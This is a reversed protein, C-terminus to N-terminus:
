QLKAKFFTLMKQEFDATATASYTAGGPVDFVHGGDPYIIYEYQKDKSKLLDATQNAQDIPVLTDPVCHFILVPAKIEACIDSLSYRVRVVTVAYAGSVSIIGRVDDRTGLILSLYGGLSHGYVGLSGPAVYSLSKLAELGNGLVERVQDINDKYFSISWKEATLGIPTFYDPAFAVYGQSAFWFARDRTSLNQGGKGHLVLVAPFPGTGSPKYFYGSVQVGGSTYTASHTAEDVALTVPASPTTWVIKSLTPAPSTPPPTYTPTTAPPPAEEKAQAEEMAPTSEVTPTQPQTEETAPIQTPSSTASPESKPTCGVLLTLVFLITILVALNKM